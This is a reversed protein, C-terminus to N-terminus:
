FGSFSPFSCTAATNRTRGACALGAGAGVGGWSRSSEDLGPHRDYCSDEVYMSIKLSLGKVQQIIFSGCPLRRPAIDSEAPGPRSPRLYFLALASETFRIYAVLTFKEPNR